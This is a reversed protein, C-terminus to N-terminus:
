SLLHYLLGLAASAALTPLMGLKLRFLAFFAGVALVLAAFDLTTPDPMWLRLPGVGTETVTGFLVHLGFWVALNLIVGVVAATIASLASSLARSGRLHEVYPAGVFIWLFCPAFTAWATVV